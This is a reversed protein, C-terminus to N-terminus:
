RGARAARAFASSLYHRFPQVYIGRSHLQAVELAPEGRSDLPMLHEFVLRVLHHATEHFKGLLVLTQAFLHFLLERGRQAAKRERPRAALIVDDFLREGHGRRRQLYIGVRIVEHADDHRFHADFPFLAALFKGIGKRLHRRLEVIGNEGYTPERCLHYLQRLYFFGAIHEGYLYFLVAPADVREFIDHDRLRFLGNAEYRHLRIATTKNSASAAAKQKAAHSSSLKSM